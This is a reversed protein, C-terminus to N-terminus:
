MCVNLGKKTVKKMRDSAFYNYWFSWYIEVKFKDDSVIFAREALKRNDYIFSYTEWLGTGASNILIGGLHQCGSDQM